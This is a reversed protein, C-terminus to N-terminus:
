PFAAHAVFFAAHQELEVFFAQVAVRVQLVHVLLLTAGAFRGAAPVDRAAIPADLPVLTSILRSGARRAWRVADDSVTVTIKRLM